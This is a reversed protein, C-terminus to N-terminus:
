HIFTSLAQVLTYMGEMTLPESLMINCLEGYSFAMQIAIMVKQINTKNITFHLLDQSDLDFVTEKNGQVVHLRPIGNEESYMVKGDKKMVRAGVRNPHDIIVKCESYPYSM